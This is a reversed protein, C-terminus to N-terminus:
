VEDRAKKLQSFDDGLHWAFGPGKAFPDGKQDNYQCLEGPAAGLGDTVPADNEYPWEYPLDPEAYIAGEAASFGLDSRVASHASDWLDPPAAAGPEAEALYWRSSAAAAFSNGIEENRFLPRVVRFPTGSVSFGTASLAAGIDPRTKLLLRPKQIDPM